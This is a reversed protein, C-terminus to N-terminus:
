GQNAHSMSTSAEEFQKRLIKEIKSLANLVRKLLYTLCESDRWRIVTEVCVNKHSPSFFNINRPIVVFSQKVIKREIIGCHWSLDHRNQDFLILCKSWKTDFNCYNASKAQSAPLIRNKEWLNCSKTNVPVNVKWRSQPSVRLKLDLAKKMTKKKQAFRLLNNM